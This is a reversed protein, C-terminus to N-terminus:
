KTARSWEFGIGNLLTFHEDDITMKGSKKLSRQTTVWRGLQAAFYNSNYCLVLIIVHTILLALDIDPLRYRLFVGYTGDKSRTPVNCHGTKEKFAKIEDYRTQWVDEDSLGWEFGILELLQVKKQSMSSREGNDLKRKQSRQNHIWHGLTPHNRHANCHGNRSKYRVLLNYHRTWSPKPENGNANRAVVVEGAEGNSNVVEEGAAVTEEEEEEEAAAAAAAVVVNAILAADEVVEEEVDAVAAGFEVLAEAVELEENTGVELLIDAVPPAMENEEAVELEDPAGNNLIDAFPPAAENEKAVELEDPAGNNLIDAFPPAAENEKAVELEDPAGNNLIDAVPLAAENEIVPFIMPGTGTALKKGLRQKRGRRRRGGNGRQHLARKKNPFSRGPHFPREVRMKKNTTSQGGSAFTSKRKSPEQRSYEIPLAAVAVAASVDDDENEVEVEGDPGITSDDESLQFSDDPVFSLGHLVSSEDDSGAGADDSADGEVDVQVQATDFYLLRM